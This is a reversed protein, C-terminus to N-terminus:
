SRIYQGDHDHDKDAKKKLTSLMKVVTKQLRRSGRAARLLGYMTGFTLLGPWFAIAFGGGVGMVIIIHVYFGIVKDREIKWHGLWEVNFLDGCFVRRRNDKDIYDPGDEAQKEADDIWRWLSWLIQMIYLTVILTGLFWWGSHAGVKWIEKLVEWFLEM